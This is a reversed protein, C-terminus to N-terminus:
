FIIDNHYNEEEGADSNMIDNDDNKNNDYM